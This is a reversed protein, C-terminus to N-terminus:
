VKRWVALLKGQFVVEDVNLEIPDYKPNAAELFIKNGKKIFYKLTTGLGPVMASVIMGNRLSYSDKIPEMLVMDGHAICADIMSDGNVTM